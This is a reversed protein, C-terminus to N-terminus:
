EAWHGHRQDSEIAAANDQDTIGDLHETRSGKEPKGIGANMADQRNVDHKEENAAAAGEAAGGACRHDRLKDGLFMEDIGDGPARCDELKGIDGAGGDAAQEERKGERRHTKAAKRTRGYDEQKCQERQDSEQDQNALETDAGAASFMLCSGNIRNERAEVIHPSRLQQEARDREVKEDHQKATRHRRIGIKALSMRCVPGRPRPRSRAAGATPAMVTEMQSDKWGVLRWAPRRMNVQTAMKPAAVTSNPRERLRISDSKASTMMPADSMTLTTM